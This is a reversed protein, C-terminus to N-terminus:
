MREERTSLLMPPTMPLWVVDKKHQLGVNTCKSLLCLMNNTNYLMDRNWLSRYSMRRQWGQFLTDKFFQSFGFVEYKNTIM